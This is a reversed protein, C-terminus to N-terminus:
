QAFILGPRMDRIFACRKCETFVGSFSWYRVAEDAILVLTKRDIEDKHKKYWQRHMEMRRGSERRTNDQVDKTSLESEQWSHHRRCVWRSDTKRKKVAYGCKPCCPITKTKVTVMYPNELRVMGAALSRAQPTRMRKWGHQLVMPGDECGCTACKNDIIEVRRKKWYATGWPVPSDVLIRFLESVPTEGAVVMERFLISDQYSKIETM